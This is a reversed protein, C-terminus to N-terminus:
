AASERFARVSQSKSVRTKRPCASAPRGADLSGHLAFRGASRGRRHGAEVRLELALLVHEVGEDGRVRAALQRGFRPGLEVFGRDAVGTHALERECVLRVRLAPPELHERRGHGRLEEVFRRGEQGVNEAVLEARAVVEISDEDGHRRM